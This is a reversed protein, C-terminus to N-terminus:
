IRRLICDSYQKKLESLMQKAANKDPFKGVCLISYKGRTIVLTAMGKRKLLAAEKDASSKTQFTAVQITYSQMLNQVPAQPKVPMSNVVPTVAPLAVVAAPTIKPLTNKQALEIRIERSRLAVTKGKEVGLSFSIIATIMFFIILIIAKEHGRLYIFPSSKRQNAETGKNVQSFLELQSSNQEEM